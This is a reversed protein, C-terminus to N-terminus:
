LSPRMHLYVPDFGALERLKQEDRVVVAGSAWEILGQSRLEQVTRNVHVSTVGVADALDVQTLPLHFSNDKVRGVLKLRSFLELLVHAIRSAASRQGVNLIWQRFIAADILTDRWLVEAITPRARILERLPEHPIFGLVAEGATSVDHDMVHLYLSQLDPIDGPQHISLIQRKGELTSKTRLVFGDVILCCASPRDGTAAILHGAKVVKMDIPLKKIAGVDSENLATVRRLRAIMPSFANPM